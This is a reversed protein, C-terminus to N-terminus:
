SRCASSAIVRHHRRLRGGDRGHRHGQRDRPRAGGRAAARDPHPRLRLARLRHRRGPGLMGALAPTTTSLSVVKGLATIGLVGFGVGLGATLLNAGAAALSGYTLVLVLAAVAVGIAESTHGAETQQVQSTVEVRVGDVTRDAVRELADAQAATVDGVTGDFTVRAAAIRGDRSVMPSQQAFPDTVSAIGDLRGVEAVVDQVVTANAATLTQGQPAQFVM